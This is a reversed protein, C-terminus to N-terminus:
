LRILLVITVVLGIVIVIKRILSGPLKISYASGFLGGLVSGILLFPVVKWDILHYIIFYISAALNIGVGGLNKLGNMQQIDSLATFGLFALMIIGYGAGFYGGYTSVIFLGFGVLITILSHHKKQANINKKTYLWRHIRTQLALLIVALLIFWPVIYEFTHNPTRKLIIAGFLGGMVSPLLLWYYKNPMRRLHKRYGYASSLAGPWITLTNTANATIPAIGMSILLPYVLLSGGGAVANIVGAFFGAGLFLLVHM